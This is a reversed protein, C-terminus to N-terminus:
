PVELEFHFPKGAGTADFESIFTIAGPALPIFANRRTVRYATSEEVVWKVGTARRLALCLPCKWTNRRRGEEIDQATVFVAIRPM